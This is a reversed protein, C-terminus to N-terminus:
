VGAYMEFITMHIFSFGSGVYFIIRSKPKEVDLEAALERCNSSSQRASRVIGAPIQEAADLRSLSTCRIEQVLQRIAHFPLPCSLKECYPIGVASKFYKFLFHFHALLSLLCIFNLITIFAFAVLIGQLASSSAARVFKTACREEPREQTSM